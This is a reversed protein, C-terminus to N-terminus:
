SAGENGALVTLLRERAADVGHDSWRERFAAGHLLLWEADGIRVVRRPGHGLEMLRGERNLTVRLRLTNPVEASAGQWGDTRWWDDLAAWVLAWVTQRRDHGAVVSEHFVGPAFPSDKATLRYGYDAHLPDGGLNGITANAIERVFAEDGHPVLEVRVRLM